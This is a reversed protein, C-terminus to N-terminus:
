SRHESILEGVPAAPRMPPGDPFLERIAQGYPLDGFEGNIYSGEEPSIGWLHRLDQEISRDAEGGLRDSGHLLSTVAEVIADHLNRSEANDLAVSPIPLEALRTHTLKPHAKDPDVEAFRKFVIYSMTRSLLAGLLFEHRLGAALFEPKLRYIYLSQPCVSGYRDLSAVLGVGAQRILLKEDRYLSLDKYQWGAVDTRFVKTPTVLQFRHALDDGDIYPLEHAGPAGDSILDITNVQGESMRYGCNPCTKNDLRGGKLKRGPVSPNLCSPCIWLLGEKSMEEGRARDCLEVLTKSRQAIKQLLEDDRRDRFVEIPFDPPDKLSRAQPIMRSQQSELQTLPVRALIADKRQQGSLLLAAIDHTEEPPTKTAEIVLTGMRVEPGFWSPGLSHLRDITTGSLLAERILVKDPYLLSDPLVFALRGGPRLAKLALLVFIEWSDWQRSADLGLWSVAHRYSDPDMEGGWPPNGIVVDLTGPTLGVLALSNEMMLSDTAAINSSLDSVREDKRASRLWLALKAIDVAQTLLDLGFISGRLLASQQATEISTLLTTEGLLDNSIQRWKWYHDLLVRYSAVLFAGSGCAPDLIRLDALVKLRLEPDNPDAGTDSVAKAVRDEFADAIAHGALFDALVESTYFVGVRKREQLRLAMDAPSDTGLEVLDSLSAEFVRGLMHEGLEGYFDFAHM